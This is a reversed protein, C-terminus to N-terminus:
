SNGLNTKAKEQKTLERDKIELLEPVTVFKYGQKKLSDIIKPLARVVHM